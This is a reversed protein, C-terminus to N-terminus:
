GGGGFLYDLVSTAPSGATPAARSPARPASGPLVQSPLRLAGARRSQARQSRESALVKSPDAGALVQATRTLTADGGSRATSASSVGASHYNANCGAVPVTSYTSCTNVLLETRLFHGISDFGNTAAVQYFIFNMLQEIGGTTQLSSTLAALNRAVPKATTAFSRLDRTTPLLARVAPTGVDAAQGLSKVAPIGATSFPGLRELFRSIDSAAPQLDAFVPGAQTAFQDLRRVTPTLERLFPPLRELNREFAARREATAQAVRNAKVVFDAVQRRDRGLPSLIRDSNTALEALQRNQSALIALVKDTEALAPNARHIVERLDGGRGALGAGLENLIVSFRQRFPLRLVNQVLDIDVPAHTRQVPLLYQGKGAGKRIKRLAPAQLAGRPRPETLTCEVFKEGILSQPRITCSADARFDRFAPRDIRLVVAAKQQPTVDLSDIRGVKVGAIKVDEGPIVSFANDFIARVKYTGGDGAGTLVVTAGGAALLTLVIAAIRRM